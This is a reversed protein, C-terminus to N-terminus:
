RDSGRGGERGKCVEGKDRLHSLELSQKEKLHAVAMRRHEDEMAAAAREHEQLRDQLRSKERRVAEVDQPSPQLHHTLSKPKNIPASPLPNAHSASGGGGMCM